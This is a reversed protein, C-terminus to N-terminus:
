MGLEKETLCVLLFPFTAHRFKLTLMCILMPPKIVNVQFYAGKM